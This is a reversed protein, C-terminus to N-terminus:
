DEVRIDVQGQIELRLRGRGMHLLRIPLQLEDLRRRLLLLRTELNDKFDPLVDAMSVRIERNTFNVQAEDLKRRLMHLLIQGAVGKIVYGRDIFVSHDFRHYLVSIARNGQSQLREPKLPSTATDEVANQHLSLLAAAYQAALEIAAAMATDFAFRERSEVFLVGHVEGQLTLSVAIQSMADALGPLIAQRLEIPPSSELVATGMRRIRTMENIRMSCGGAAVKGILGVGHAVEAGVCRSEYGLSAAVTSVKRDQDSLLVMAHEFGFSERVIALLETLLQAPDTLDGLRRMTAALEVLDPQEKARRDAPVDSAVPRIEEVLFIDVARLRMVDAMGIQASSADLQAEIKLFLPGHDISEQWTVALQYQKGTIPEVIMIMAHPDSRLNATTKTFFQNSLAVRQDDVQVVHSLYSINPMGDPARTAISSPFVGEFCTALDSLNM